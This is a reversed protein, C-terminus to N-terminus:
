SNQDTFDKSMEKIFALKRVCLYRGTDKKTFIYWILFGWFRLFKKRFKLIKVFFSTTVPVLFYKKHLNKNWGNCLRFVSLIFQLM